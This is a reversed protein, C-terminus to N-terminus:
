KVMVLLKFISDILTVVIFLIQIIFLSINNALYLKVFIDILSIISIVTCCIFFILYIWSSVASTLLRNISIFFKKQQADMVKDNLKFNNENDGNM